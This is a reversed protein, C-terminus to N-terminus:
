CTASSNEFKVWNSSNCFCPLNLSDDMYFAGKTTADCTGPIDTPTIMMLGNVHLTANPSSTGIGVNGNEQIRFLETGSGIINSNKTIKFISTTDDNNGDLNISYGFSSVMGQKGYLDGTTGLILVDSTGVTINGVVELKSQPNTTGIGVNLMTSTNQSNNTWGGTGDGAGAATQDTICQVGIATVNQVVQGAACTGVGAKSLNLADITAQQATSVPKNTDATNDVNNLSLSTKFGSYDSAGLLTQVNASPTIGAYTTLDADYAQVDTGIALGLNYRANAITTSAIIERGIATLNTETWTHASTTYLTKDSNTGWGSISTLDANLPQKNNIAISDNYRQDGIALYLINLQSTTNYNVSVASWNGISIIQNQLNNDATGRTSTETILSTNVSDVRNNLTTDANARNTIELNLSGNVDGILSNLATDANARNTAETGITVTDNYRQDAATLWPSNQIYSANLNGFFTVSYINNWKASSSGLNFISDLSPYSSGNIYNNSVTMNVVSGIVDLNGNILLNGNLTQSGTNKLTSSNLSDIRTNSADINNQLTTDSSGRNTIESNLSSNVADVRSNLTTDANGRNTAETGIAATDNYRQDTTTLWPANQVYSYDINGLFISATVNGSANINGSTDINGTVSLKASPTNTGIGVNGGNIILDESTLTINKIVGTTSQFIQRDNGNFVTNEGNIIFDMYYNKGYELSLSVSGSGLMIDYQSNTITDYFDSSSNYILTGGSPADYILVTLNGNVLNGSNTYINGQLAMLNNIALSSASLIITLLTIFFMNILLRHNVSKSKELIGVRIYM